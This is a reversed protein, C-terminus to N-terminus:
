LLPHLETSCIACHNSHQETCAKCYCWVGDSFLELSHWKLPLLRTKIKIIALERVEPIVFFHPTVPRMENVGFECISQMGGNQLAKMVADREKATTYHPQEDRVFLFMRRGEICYAGGKGPEIAWGCGACRISLPDNGKEGGM